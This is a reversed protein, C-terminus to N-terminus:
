KMKISHKHTKKQTRGKKNLKIEKIKNERSLFHFLRGCGVFPFPIDM